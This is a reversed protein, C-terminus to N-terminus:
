CRLPIASPRLCTHFIEVPSHASSLPSHAPPALLAPVGCPAAAIDLAACGDSPAAPGSAADLFDSNPDDLPLRVPGSQATGFILRPLCFDDGSAGATLLCCLLPLARLLRFRPPM